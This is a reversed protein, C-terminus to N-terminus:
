VFDSMQMIPHQGPWGRFGIHKGLEACTTSFETCFPGPGMETLAPSVTTNKVVVLASAKVNEM